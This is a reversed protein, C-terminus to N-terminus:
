IFLPIILFPSFALASLVGLEFILQKWRGMSTYQHMSAATITLLFVGDLVIVDLNWVSYFRAVEAILHSAGYYELLFHPTFYVRVLHHSVWGLLIGLILVSDSNLKPSTLLLKTYRYIVVASALIM